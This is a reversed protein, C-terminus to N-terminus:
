IPPTSLAPAAAPPAESRPEATEAETRLTAWDIYGCSVYMQREQTRNPTGLRMRGVTAVTAVLTIDQCASM